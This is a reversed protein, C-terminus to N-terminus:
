TFLHDVKPVHSTDPFHALWIVTRPLTSLKTLEHSDIALPACSQREVVFKGVM